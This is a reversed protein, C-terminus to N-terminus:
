SCGSTPRRGENSRALYRAAVSVALLTASVLAVYRAFQLEWMLAAIGSSESVRTSAYAVLGARALYGGLLILSLTHTIRVWLRLGWGDRGLIARVAMALFVVSALTAILAQGDALRAGLGPNQEFAWGRFPVFV